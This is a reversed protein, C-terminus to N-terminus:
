NYPLNFNLEFNGPAPEELPSQLSALVIWTRGPKLSYPMNFQNFFQIPKDQSITRWSGVTMVGDRFFVAKQGQTNGWITIDHLTPAYQIYDAFLIVVNAYELQKQNLKDVHPIMVLKDNEYEGTEIWKQYLGTDRNYHWEGRNEVGFNIAIVLGPHESQPLRSDFIMGRLDPAQNPLGTKETMYTRVEAPYTFMGALSHTDDGCVPPCPSLKTPLLRKDLFKELHEEVALDANGYVLYGPYMMGLQADVLRGSRIPGAEKPDESLFIALFRNVEYGIYYEFVLDASGLGSQPRGYRPYNSIKVMVPMRNVLAPDAVQLGTLPNVDPPFTFFGLVSTTPSPEITPAPTPNEPTPSAPIATLTPEVTIVKITNTVAPSPALTPLAAPAAASPLCAALLCVLLASAALSIPRNM